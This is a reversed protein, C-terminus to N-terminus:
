GVKRRAPNPHSPPNNPDMRVPEGEFARCFDMELNMRQVMHDLEEVRHTLERISKETTRNEEFAEGNSLPRCAATRAYDSLSRSGQSICSTMMAAYEEDSLRFSVIRSRRKLVPM